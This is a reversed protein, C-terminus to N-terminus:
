DKVPIKHDKLIRHILRVFFPQESEDMCYIAGYVDCFAESLSGASVSHKCFKEMVGNRAACLLIDSIKVGLEPENELIWWWIRHGEEHRLIFLRNGCGPPVWGVKENNMLTNDMRKIVKPDKSFFDPHFILDGDKEIYALTRGETM